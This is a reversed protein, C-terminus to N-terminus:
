IYFALPMEVKRGTLNLYVAHMIIHMKLSILTLIPGKVQYSVVTVKKIIRFDYLNSFKTM